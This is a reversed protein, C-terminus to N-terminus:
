HDDRSSPLDGNWTESPQAPDDAWDQGMTKGQRELAQPQADAPSIGMAYFGALCTTLKQVARSVSCRGLLGSHHAALNVLDWRRSGLV